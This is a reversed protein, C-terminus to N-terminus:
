EIRRESHGAMRSRRAAFSPRTSAAQCM